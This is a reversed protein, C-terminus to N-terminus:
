SAVVLAQPAAQKMRGRAWTLQMATEGECTQVVALLERDRAGQAAQGVLTWALDCECALLYVDHLDRLLGLPGDRPGGFIESHLRRPESHADEGYREAFPGLQEAHRECQSALKACMDHVDHDDAHSRAVTRFANGLEAQSRHLLALYHALHM